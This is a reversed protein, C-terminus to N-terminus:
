MTLHIVIIMLRSVRNSSYLILTEPEEIGVVCRDYRLEGREEIMRHLDYGRNNSHCGRHDCEYEPKILFSDQIGESCELFIKRVSRVFLSWIPRLYGHLARSPVTYQDPRSIALSDGSNHILNTLNIIVSPSGKESIPTERESSLFPSDRCVTNFFSTGHSSSCSRQSSQPAWETPMRRLRYGFHM